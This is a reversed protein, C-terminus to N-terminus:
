KVIFFIPQHHQSPPTFVTVIVVRCMRVLEINRAVLVKVGLPSQLKRLGSVDHTTSLHTLYSPHTTTPSFDINAVITICCWSEQTQSKKKDM